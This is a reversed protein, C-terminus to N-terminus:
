HRPARRRDLRNMKKKKKKKKYKKNPVELQALGCPDSIAPYWRPERRLDRLDRYRRTRVRDRLSCRGHHWRAMRRSTLLGDLYLPPESARPPLARGRCYEDDLQMGLGKPRPDFAQFLGLHATRTGSSSCRPRATRRSAPAFPPADSWVASPSACRPSCYLHTM